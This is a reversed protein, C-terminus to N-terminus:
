IVNPSMKIVDGNYKLATSLYLLMSLPYTNVVTVRREGISVSKVNVALVKTISSPDLSGIPTGM